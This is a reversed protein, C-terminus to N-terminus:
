NRESHDEDDGDDIRTWGSETGNVPGPATAEATRILNNQYTSVKDVSASDNPDGPHEVVLVHKIKM